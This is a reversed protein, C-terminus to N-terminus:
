FEGCYIPEVDFLKPINEQFRLEIRFFDSIASRAIAYMWPEFPYAPDFTHRSVHMKLMTNQFVDEVKSEERVRKRIFRNLHPQISVLLKRYSEQNGAQTETFLQVWDKNFGEKV